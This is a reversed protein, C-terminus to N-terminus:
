RDEEEELAASLCVRIMHSRSVSESEAAQDLQELRDESIRLSITADRQTSDRRPDTADSM